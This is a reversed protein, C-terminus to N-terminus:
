APSYNYISPVAMGSQPTAKVDKDSVLLYSMRYFPLYWGQEVLHENLAKLDAEAADPKAQVSGVLKKVTDDTTGFMNFTGPLVLTRLVIGDVTDLGMNMVMGSYEKNVFVKQLVAPDPADWVLEVGIKELDSKLSAALADNVIATVRPLRLKFGKEYGAEKLLAKAKEPDHPYATDLAPDYAATEPGFVQATVEGRGQRLASLMTERDVAHNLAQRVRADGLAPTVKGGRDFLLIGQFDFNVDTTTVNPDSKMSVQQGVDQLLATDIQDTKLGNVIATENDFVSMTVTGYPPKEGWYDPSRTYVWKTGVVTKAADLRYPGTGVPKTKLEEEKAFAAPSAMLGASDSLYFLLGPDPQALVLKVHTADVVEISTVAALDTADAGGGKKFRELNAKVAEADFATGDQFKVGTRLTLTLETGAEDFAWETALMPSYTGDPERKVLTDYVAQFFPLASGNAVKPDLSQPKTLTAIDLTDDSGGSGGSTDACGSLAFATTLAAAVLATKASRQM